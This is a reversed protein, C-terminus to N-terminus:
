EDRAQSSEDVLISRGDGELVDAPLCVCYEQYEVEAFKCQEVESSHLGFTPGKFLKVVDEIRWM